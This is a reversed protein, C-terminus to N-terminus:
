GSWFRLPGRVSLECWHGDTEAAECKGERVGVSEAQLQTRRADADTDLTGTEDVRPLATRVRIDGEAPEARGADPRDCPGDLTECAQRTLARQRTAPDGQVRRYPFGDAGVLSICANLATNGQLYAEEESPGDISDYQELGNASQEEQFSDEQDHQWTMTTAILCATVMGSTTRGRGMQCNFIFDAPEGSQLGTRM